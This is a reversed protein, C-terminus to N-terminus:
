SVESFGRDRVFYNKEFYDVLRESKIHRFKLPKELDGFLPIGGGLVVPVTSIILEDLLDQQLLSQVLKGGDVYLREFGEKYLSGLVEKLEGKKIFVKDKLAAPISDLSTSLVFVPKTYPWDGGFGRVVDFTKRGMLIGDINAIFESFGFDSGTPNPIDHLWDIGHNKDAIYGDMSCALYASNKM